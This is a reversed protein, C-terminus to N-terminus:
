YPRVDNRVQEVTVIRQQKRYQEALSKLAQGKQSRKYSAGDADFDFEIAVKAVWMELLDAAAGYPDYVMGSILVSDQSISFEWRGTLYDSSSPTLENYSSDCLTADSEWYGEESYWERYETNGSVVLPIPKLPLYRFEWRHVDLSRQIEDDTFVQNTGAPDGILSRVLSILQAM